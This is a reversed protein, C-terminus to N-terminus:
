APGHDHCIQTVLGAVLSPWQLPVDHVAGVWRQIRIPPNLERTADTLETLSRDKALAWRDAVPEACVIVWLRGLSGVHNGTLDETPDYDLLGDLVAMHRDMGIVTWTLGEDDTRYTPALAARLEDTWNISDQSEILQWLTVPPIGLAPPRLQERIVERPGLHRPGWLGGDILGTAAIRDGALRRARLAVSAGWSHGVVACEQWGLLDLYELVDRACREVSFDATADTDSEGHGRQDLVLTEPLQARALVPDWFHRQQSLGHLLVLPLADSNAWEANVQHSAVISSGDSVELRLTQMLTM